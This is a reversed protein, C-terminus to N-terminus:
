DIDTEEVAGLLAPIKKGNLDVRRVRLVEFGLNYYRKDKVTSDTWSTDIVEAKACFDDSARNLLKRAEVENIHPHHQQILEILERQKM